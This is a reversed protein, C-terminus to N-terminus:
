QDQICVRSIKLAYGVAQIGLRWHGGLRSKLKLRKQGHVHNVQKKETKM